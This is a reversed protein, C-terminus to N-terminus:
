FKCFTDREKKIKFIDKQIVEACHIFEHLSANFLSEVIIGFISNGVLFCENYFWSSIEKVAMTSLPFIM